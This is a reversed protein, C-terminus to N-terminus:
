NNPAGNRIWDLIKQVDTQKVTGSPPMAGGKVLTYFASTNPAITNVYGGNMLENYAKDPVLSPHHSGAADHCGALACSKTLIPLLDGSFSVQQPPGNPDAGPAIIDKYCSQLGVGGLIFLAIISLLRKMNKIKPHNNKSNLM